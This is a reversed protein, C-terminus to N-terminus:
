APWGDSVCRNVLGGIGEIDTKVVDGLQLYVPPKRFTGVGAPTGTAVLDGPELTTFASIYALVAAPTFVFDDTCGQQMLKGNVTCRLALNLPDIEDPTVMWPGIPTTGEFNKGPLFQTTHFQWDRVSVDNFVTYGAITQDAVDDAVHRVKTGVYFALEVEWDCMHSIQPLQIDDRPGILTNPWKNFLTPHEPVQIGQEEIHGRFNQGVCIIKSPSLVPPLLKLDALVHRPGSLRQVVDIAGSRLIAGVDNFPLEVAVDGEVRAAKTTPGAWFTLLRM